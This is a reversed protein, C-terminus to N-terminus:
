PPKRRPKTRTVGSQRTHRRRGGRKLASGHHNNKDTRRDNELIQHDSTSKIPSKIRTVGIQTTKQTQAASRASLNPSSLRFGEGAPPLHCGCASPHPGGRYLIDVFPLRQGQAGRMRRKAGGEGLPPLSETQAIASAGAVVPAARQLASVPSSDGGQQTLPSFWALVAPNGTDPILPTRLVM